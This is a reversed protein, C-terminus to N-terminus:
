RARRRRLLVGALWLWPMAGVANCTCGVALQRRPVGADTAEAGADPDGGDVEGADPTGADSAGADPAGADMGADPEGADPIGADPTGADVGADRVFVVSLAASAASTGANMAGDRAVVRWRAIGEVDLPDTLTTSATTGRTNFGGDNMSRELTYSLGSPCGDSAPAWSLVAVGGDASATPPAAVPAVTDTLLELSPTSWNSVQDGRVSAIRVVNRRCPGTVDIVATPTSV